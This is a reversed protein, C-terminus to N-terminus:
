VERAWLSMNLHDSALNSLNGHKTPARIQIKKSPKSLPHHLACMCLQTEQMEQFLCLNLRIYTSVLKERPSGLCMGELREVICTQGQTFRPHPKKKDNYTINYVGGESLYLEDREVVSRTIALKTSQDPDGWSGINTEVSDKAKVTMDQKRLLASMNPQKNYNSVFRKRRQVCTENIEDVTKRRPVICTASAPVDQWTQHYNEVPVHNRLIEGVRLLEDSSLQVQHLLNNLEQLNTDTACRVYCKLVCPLFLHLLSSHLWFPKGEIPQLQRPDGTAMFLKGGMPLKSNMIQALMETITSFQEQSIMGIEEFAIIDAKRLIALKGHANRLNVLSTEALRIASSTKSGISERMAFIDHMHVGGLYQSRKGTLAMIVVNLKKSLAYLMGLQMIHTKGAGPVGVLLPWRVVSTKGGIYQNVSDIVLNLALQQEQYSDNSQEALQILKPVWDVPQDKRDRMLQVDLEPPILGQAELADILVNRVNDIARNEEETYDFRLQHSLVHPLERNYLEEGRCFSSFVKEAERLMETWPRKSLACYQHLETAWMKLLHQSEQEVSLGRPLLQAHYFMDKMSAM